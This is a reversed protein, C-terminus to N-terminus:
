TFDFIYRNIKREYRVNITPVKFNFAKSAWEIIAATLGEKQFDCLSYQLSNIVILTNRYISNSLIQNQVIQLGTLLYPWDSNDFKEGEIMPKESFKIWIGDVVKIASSHFDADDMNAIEAYIVINICWSTKCIFYKHEIMINEGSRVATRNEKVGHVKSISEKTFKIKLM